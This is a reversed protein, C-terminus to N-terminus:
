RVAFFCGWPFPFFLLRASFSSRPPPPNTLRKFLLYFPPLVSGWSFPPKLFTKPFPPGRFWGPKYFSFSSCTLFPPPSCPNKFFSFDGGFFLKTAMTPFPRNPPARPPVLFRSFLNKPFFFFDPPPPPSFPNPSGGGPPSQFSGTPFFGRLPFFQSIPGNPFFLM